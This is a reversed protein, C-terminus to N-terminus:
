PTDKRARLASLEKELDDVRQALADRDDGLPQVAPDTWRARQRNGRGPGRGFRGGGGCPGRGGGTLSGRGQPGTGDFGPM